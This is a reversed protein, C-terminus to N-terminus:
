TRGALWGSSSLLLTEELGLRTSNVALLTILPSMKEETREGAERGWGLAGPGCKWLEERLLLAVGVERGRCASQM